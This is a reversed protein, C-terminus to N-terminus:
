KITIKKISEIIPMNSVTYTYIDDDTMMRKYEITDNMNSFLKFDTIVGQDSYSIHKREVVVFVEKNPILSPKDINISDTGDKNVHNTSKRSSTM